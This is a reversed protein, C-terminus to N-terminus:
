FRFNFDVYVMNFNKIGNANAPLPDGLHMSRKYGLTLTSLRALEFAVSPDLVLGSDFRNKGAWVATNEDAFTNYDRNASYFGRMYNQSIRTGHTYVFDFRPSIRIPGFIRYAASGAFILAKGHPIGDDGPPIQEGIKMFQAFRLNAWMTRSSFDIRQGTNLQYFGYQSHRNTFNEICMDVAIRPIGNNRFGLYNIGFGMDASEQRYGGVLSLEVLNPITYRLFAVYSAQSLQAAQTEEDEGPVTFVGDYNIGGVPSIATYLFLNNIPSILAGVTALYGAGISLDALGGDTYFPIGEAIGARLELWPFPSTWLTAEDLVPVMAGSTVASSGQLYFRMGLVAGANRQANTFAAVFDTRHARRGVNSSLGLTPQTDEGDDFALAIGTRVAGSFTVNQAFITNAMAMTFIFFVFLLKKMITSRNFDSISIL